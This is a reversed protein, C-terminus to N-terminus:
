PMELGCDKAFDDITPQRSKFVTKDFESFLGSALDKATERLKAKQKKSIPKGSKYRKKVKKIKKKTGFMDDAMEATLDELTEVADPADFRKGLIEDVPNMDEHEETKKMSAKRHKILLWAVYITGGALLALKGCTVWGLAAVGEVIKTGLIKLGTLLAGTGEM